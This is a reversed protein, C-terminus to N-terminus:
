QPGKNWYKKFIDNVINKAVPKQSAFFLYYVIAGTTNRMPMPEPVEAFEAASQLRRRFADVVTRIDTKEEMEYGFLDETKTYAIERWSDDGWFADMRAIDKQSVKSSDRWLVNRNMDMVPFNLFIEITGEKGAAEVVTWDLHLGYPDLLWLARRFNKYRCRPLIEKLLVENCDAEYVYCDTRDGVLSRLSSAKTQSLDIFHYERFPPEVELANQPSGKVFEGSTKSIHRGGGAFGDVYLHYFDRASLIKSYASAYERIIDLKVESWYGIQDYKNEPTGDM